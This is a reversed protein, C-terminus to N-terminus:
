QCHGGPVRQLGGQGQVCFESPFPQLCYHTKNTVCYLLLSINPNLFLVTAPQVFNVNFDFLLRLSQCIFLNAVMRYMGDRRTGDRWDQGHGTGDRWDQGHGTLGGIRDM